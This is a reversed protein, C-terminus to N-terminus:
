IWFRRVLTDAGCLSTSSTKREPYISKWASRGRANGLYGACHDAPWKLVNGAHRKWLSKRAPRNALQQRQRRNWAMGQEHVRACRIGSPLKPGNADPNCQTHM